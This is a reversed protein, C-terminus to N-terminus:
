WISWVIMGKRLGKDIEGVTYHAFMNKGEDRYGRGSLNFGGRKYEM